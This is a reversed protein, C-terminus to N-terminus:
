HITIVTGPQVDQLGELDHLSMRICGHSLAAGRGIQEDSSGAPGHIAVIADNIGGFNRIVDSHANTVVMFPGYDEAPPTALHTVFFTGKPTPTSKKGLVVRAKLVLRRQHYRRLTRKTTDIDIIDSGQYVKMDGSFPVWLRSRNPRDQVMVKMWREGNVKREAVIPLYAEGGHWAAPIKRGADGGPKRKGNVDEALHLVRYPPVNGSRDKKGAKVQVPQKVLVPSDKYREPVKEESSGGIMFVALGILGALIIVPVALRFPEITIVSDKTKITLKKKM